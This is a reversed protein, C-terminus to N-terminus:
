YEGPTLVCTSSRDAEPLGRWDLRLGIRNATPWSVGFERALSSPSEGNDYRRRIEHVQVPALKSPTPPL